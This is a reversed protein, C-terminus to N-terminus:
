PTSSVPRIATGARLSQLGSVIVQEGAELGELIQVRGATRMGTLVVRRRAQGGDAVFLTKEGSGSLVAVSPVLLADPFAAAEWTVRAFAGPRFRGDPNPARARALITRTTEDIQPELAYIEAVGPATLGAVDFGVTQGVRVRSGYKEPLTLDIKISDIAQLRAIRTGPTAYAGESISRLGIIGDFPARIETRALQAKILEVEANLVSLESAAVDYEQQPVGGKDVLATIRRVKLEALERRYRARELAARLEADNIVALLEGARVAAGEQFHIKMVKGAIEAQVDVSEDARVTGTVVVSEGLPEPQVIVTRVPTAERLRPGEARIGPGAPPEEPRAARLLLFASLGAALGLATTLIKKKLRTSDAARIM